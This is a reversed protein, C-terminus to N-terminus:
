LMALYVVELFVGLLHDWADSSQIDLVNICTENYFYDNLILTTFRDVIAPFFGFLSYLLVAHVPAPM